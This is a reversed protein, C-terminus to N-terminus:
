RDSRVKDMSHQRGKGRASLPTERVQDSIRARQLSAGSPVVCFAHRSLTKLGVNFHFNATAAPISAKQVAEKPEHQRYQNKISQVHKHHSGLTENCSCAGVLEPIERTRPVYSSKPDWPRVVAQLKGEM